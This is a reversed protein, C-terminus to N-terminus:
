EDDGTANPWWMVDLDAREMLLVGAMVGARGAVALVAGTVFCGGIIAVPLWKKQDAYLEQRNV